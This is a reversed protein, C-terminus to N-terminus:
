DKLSNCASAMKKLLREGGVVKNGNSIAVVVVFDNGGGVTVTENGGDTAVLTGECPGLKELTGGRAGDLLRRGPNSAHLSGDAKVTKCTNICLDM